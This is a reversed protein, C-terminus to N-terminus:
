LNEHNEHKEHNEHNEHWKRPQKRSKHIWTKWPTKMDLWGNEMDLLVSKWARSKQQNQQFWLSHSNGHFECSKWPRVALCISTSEYMWATHFGLKSVIHDGWIYGWAFFTWWHYFKADHRHDFALDICSQSRSPFDVRLREFYCVGFCLVISTPSTIFLFVVRAKASGFTGLM